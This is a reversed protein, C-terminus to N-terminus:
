ISRVMKVDVVVYLPGNEYGCGSIYPGTTLRVM